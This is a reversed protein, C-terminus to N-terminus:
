EGIGDCKNSADKQADVLAKSLDKCPDGDAGPETVSKKYDECSLAGQCVNLAARADALATCEKEANARLGDQGGDNFAVCVEVYDDELKLGLEDQCDYQKQCVGQSSSCGVSLAAVVSALLALKKLQM